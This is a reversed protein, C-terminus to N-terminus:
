AEDFEPLPDDFDARLKVGRPGAGLGRHWRSVTPRPSPPPSTAVVTGQEATEASAEDANATALQAELAEIRLELLQQAAQAQRLKATTLGHARTEAELAAELEANKARAADLEETAVAEPPRAAASPTQPENQSM